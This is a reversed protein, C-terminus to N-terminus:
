TNQTEILSFRLSVATNNVTTETQFEILSKESVVFPQSPALTTHNEIAADMYDRFVEYKAGSVLSTVWCKTTIVPESGGGGIRVMNIYLWDLLATHNDQVFFFAQQSSGLGSPIQAQTSGGTTATITITGANVGGTGALYIAARNIGLIQITGTSVVVPTLGNLTVVVQQAIYNQDVVYLIISRAGTGAATDNADSSVVTIGSAATLRTLTGGVSWVTEAAGTDIDANYGWKNWTTNGTRKNMAVEYHYDNVRVLTADADNGLAQNIPSAPTRFQGYYTYLRLYTQNSASTNEMRVRFYRPGKVANHFEHIGASVQFGSSPFSDWNTGDNSFDFYLTGAQDTKCSVMVDSLSNQVATGTFTAGTNLASTSSNLADRTGSVVTNLGYEDDSLTAALNKGSWYTLLANFLTNWNSM